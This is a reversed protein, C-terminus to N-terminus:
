KPRHNESLKFVSQDDSWIWRQNQGKVPLKRDTVLKEQITSKSRYKVTVGTM